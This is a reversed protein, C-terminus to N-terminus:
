REEIAIGALMQAEDDSWEPGFKIRWTRRIPTVNDGSLIVEIDYEGPALVSPYEAETGVALPQVLTSIFLKTPDAGARGLYGLDCHRFIGSPVRMTSAGGASSWLLPMPLFKTVPHRGTDDIRWVRAALLEVNEATRGREHAVLIRLYLVMEAHIVQRDKSWQMEILHVDPPQPRIGMTLSARGYLRRIPEQVFLAIVTVGALVLTGVATWTEPSWGFVSAVPSATGSSGGVICCLM